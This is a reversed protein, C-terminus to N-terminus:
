KNFSFKMKKKGQDTSDDREGIRKVPMCMFNDIKPQNGIHTKKLRRLSNEIRHLSFGKIGVLFDKIKEENPLNWVLDLQECNTVKPKKFLKRAEVFNFGNPITYKQSECSELFEMVLEIKSCQKILKFARSSGIGPITKSYDCGLLICLDVFEEYTFDMLSLAEKLNIEIIPEKKYNVGRLLFSAGFALADMDESVVAFAKGAKVLEACQAEAEAPAEIVPIGMYILMEKVDEIMESTIHTIRKMTKHVEEMAKCGTKELNSVIQDLEKSIGIEEQDSEGYCLYDAGAIEYVTSGAIASIRDRLSIEIEMLENDYKKRQIVQLQLQSLKNKRRKEDLKKTTLQTEDGANAKENKKKKDPEEKAKKTTTAPTITAIEKEGHDESISKSTKKKKDYKTKVGTDQKAEEIVPVELPRDQPLEQLSAQYLTHESIIKDKAKQKLQKRRSLEDLKLGPAAGDFVWIPRIGNDLYQITRYFIGQLHGTPNGSEDTLQHHSNNQTAILCQYMSMSADCAVVKGSYSSLQTKKVAKSAKENIINMLQKIGM